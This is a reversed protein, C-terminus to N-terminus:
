FSPFIIAGMTISYCYLVKTILIIIIIIILSPHSPSSAFQPFLLFFFPLSPFLADDVWEGSEARAMMRRKEETLCGGVKMFSAIRRWM